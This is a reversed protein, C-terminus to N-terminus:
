VLATQAFFNRPEVADPRRQAPHTRTAAAPPHSAGLYAREAAQSELGVVSMWRTCVTPPTAGSAASHLHRRDFWWFNRARRSGIIVEVLLGRSRCGACAVRLSSVGTSSRHSARRACRSRRLRGALPLRGADADDRGVLISERDRRTIRGPTRCGERRQKM